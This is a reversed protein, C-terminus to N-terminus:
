LPRWDPEPDDAGAASAPGEAAAASGSEVVIPIFDDFLAGTDNLPHDNM